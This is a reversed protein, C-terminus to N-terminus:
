QLDSGTEEILFSARGPKTPVDQACKSSHADDLAVAVADLDDAFLDAYVDLAMASSKHGLM